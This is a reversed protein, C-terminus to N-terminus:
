RVLIMKRTDEHEEYVLRCMYVGAAVDVGFEDKGNWSVAHDGEVRIEDVLTRIRRGQINYVSLTVHGPRMLTFAISTSPTFPNPRNQHLAIPVTQDEAGDPVGASGPLSACTISVDDIYVGEEVDSEDSSFRFRIQVADGPEGQIPYRYELWDNGISGLEGLAGGSGIFDLTDIAAGGSLIEVYFGDEHYIPFEYWCWFSLESEDGLAFEPSDLHCDMGNDYEWTSQSGCYWSSTGSHARHSTIGWLDGVGGHTWGQAGAEFDHTFGV